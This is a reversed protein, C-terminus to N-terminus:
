PMVRSFPQVVGSAGTLTLSNREVSVAFVEEIHLYETIPPLPAPYPARAPPPGVTPRPRIVGDPGPYAAPDVVKSQCGGLLLMPLDDCRVHDNIGPLDKSGVPSSTDLTLRIDEGIWQYKGTISPNMEPMTLATWGQEHVCLVFTRGTKPDIAQWDGFLLERPEPNPAPTRPIPHTLRGQYEIVHVRNRGTTAPPIIEVSLSREGRDYVDSIQKPPLLHAGCVQNANGRYIWGQKALEAQYFARVAAPQDIEFQTERRTGDVVSIYDRFLTTQLQMAEPPTPPLARLWWPNIHAVLNAVVLVIALIAWIWFFRSSKNNM